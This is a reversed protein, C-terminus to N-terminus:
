RLVNKCLRVVEALVAADYADRYINILDDAVEPELKDVDYVIADLIDREDVGDAWQGSIDLWPLTDVVASDCEDIGALTARAVDQVNVRSSVRGGIADQEWWAVANKGDRKGNGKAKNTWTAAM